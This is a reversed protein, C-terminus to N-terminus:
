VQFNKKRCEDKAEFKGGLFTDNDQLFIEQCHFGRDLSPIRFASLQGDM